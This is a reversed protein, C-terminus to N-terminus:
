LGIIRLCFLCSYGRGAPLGEVRWRPDFVARPTPHGAAGGSDAGWGGDHHNPLVPEKRRRARRCAAGEVRGEMAEPQSFVAAESLSGRVGLTGHCSSGDACRKQWPGPEPLLAKRAGDSCPSTVVQSNYVVMIISDIKCRNCRSLGLPLHVAPSCEFGPLRAGSGTNLAWVGSARRKRIPCRCVPFDGYPQSTIQQM